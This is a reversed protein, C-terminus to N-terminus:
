RPMPIPVKGCEVGGFVGVNNGEWCEEHQGAPDVVVFLDIAQDLPVDCSVVACEAEVLIQPIPVACLQAGMQSGERFSVETGSELPKTGRNCLEAELTVVNGDCQVERVAGSVTLDAIGSADLGGQVNTRFNNLESQRWNIDVATAAPLTGNDRVHTVHYAHQNWVPRSAAWRDQVDRLVAIGHAAQFITSPMLPDSGGCSAVGAGTTTMGVVIESNFDGDVDAIVPYETVTGSSRSASYKVAGTPGDYIRLFCEDAYVAEAAGDANFDFVSSGTINSSLDKSPQAWLIGDGYCGAGGGVCDPDFVLYFYGGATAFERQGDGDFDAVTVPGGRNDNKGGPLAYPGFM